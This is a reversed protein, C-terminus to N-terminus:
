FPAPSPFRVWAILKSPQLEVMSSCGRFGIKPFKTSPPPNSGGFTSGASKCDSGKPREPVGGNLSKIIELYNSETLIIKRLETDLIFCREFNM